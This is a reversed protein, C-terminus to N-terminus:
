CFPPQAIIIYHKCDFGLHILKSRPHNPLFFFKWSGTQEILSRGGFFWISTPFCKSDKTLHSSGKSFLIELTITEARRQNWLKTALLGISNHGIWLEHNIYSNFVLSVNALVLKSGWHSWHLLNNKGKGRMWKFSHYGQSATAGVEVTTSCKDAKDGYM